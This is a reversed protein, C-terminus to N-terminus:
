DQDLPLHLRNFQLNIEVGKFNDLGSEIRDQLFVPRLKNSVYETIILAKQMLGPDQIEAGRFVFDALLSLDQVNLYEDDVLGNNVAYGVDIWSENILDIQHEDDYANRINNYTNFGEFTLDVLFL